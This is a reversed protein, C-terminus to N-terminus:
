GLLAALSAPLYGWTSYWYVFYAFSSAVICFELYTKSLRLKEATLAITIALFTYAEFYYYYFTLPKLGMMWPLIHAVYLLAVFDLHRQNRILVIAVLAILGVASVIPNAVFLSRPTPETRMIWTWWPEGFNYSPVSRHFHFIIEHATLLYSVPRHERILLPIWSLLYTVFAVGAMMFPKRWRQKILAFGICVFLGMVGFLRSAVSLGFLLGAGYWAAGDTEMAILFLWIATMEFSLEYISIMALRSLMYWFGGAITLLWAIYATRITGSLRYTAGFIATALLTGALASPFRWGFTNDGLLRMSAAILYKAFPPHETNTSPAGALFARAADLYFHEDFGMPRNGIGVVLVALSIAIVILYHKKM